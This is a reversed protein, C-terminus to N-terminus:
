NCFFRSPVIMETVAIVWSVVILRTVPIIAGESLLHNLPAIAIYIATLNEHSRTSKVVCSSHRSNLSGTQASYWYWATHQLMGGKKPPNPQKSSVGLWSQKKFPPLLRGLNTYNAPIKTQISYWKYGIQSFLKGPPYFYVWNPQNLEANDDLIPKSVVSIGNIDVDPVLPHLQPLLTGWNTPRCQWRNTEWHGTANRVFLIM